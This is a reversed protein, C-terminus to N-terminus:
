GQRWAATAKADMLIGVGEGRAAIDDEGPLTRGSHVFTYGDVAPWVDKGFWKSEQIDVISVRFRQLERVLLDLKRDVHGVATEGGEGSVPRKRCIRADGFSEVLSRVNWSGVFLDM